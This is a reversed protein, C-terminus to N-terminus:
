RLSSFPAPTAESEDKDESWKYKGIDVDLSSLFVRSCDVTVLWWSVAVL